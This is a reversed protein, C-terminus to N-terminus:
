AADDAGLAALALLHQTRQMLALRQPLSADYLHYKAHHLLAQSLAEIAHLQRNADVVAELAQVVLAVLPKRLANLHREIDAQVRSTAEEMHQDLLEVAGSVMRHETAIEERDTKLQRYAAPSWDAGLVALEEAATAEYRTLAEALRQHEETLLRLREGLEHRRRLLPQLWPHDSLRRLTLVDYSAATELTDTAVPSETDPRRLPM